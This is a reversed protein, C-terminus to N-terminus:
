IRPCRGLLQMWDGGIDMSGAMETSFNSPRTRKGPFYFECASAWHDDSGQSDHGLWANVRYSGPALPPSKLCVRLIGNQMPKPNRIPDANTDSGLIPHGLENLITIGGYPKKLLYPSEFSISIIIEGQKIAEDDVRIDIIRPTHLRKSPSRPRPAQMSFTKLVDPTEGNASIQGHDLLISRPCLQRVYGLNHSVFLVTRGQGRSVDQMKGLCKQQFQIDGVALVEDIILIEPELHAAVAFALRVYMGSSYRKVPTDLFKEVEAFAVIEDFKQRIEFRTMGLISGNLYINERGTLEPHFGTGVELLSAVRGRLAIRGRTPETIRSLCKLLTSKGAGNRGIIGVVEGQNISFSVDQLAWFDEKETRKGWRLRRWLQHANQQLTDRLTAARRSEHQIIYRKSLGSVEIIPASM